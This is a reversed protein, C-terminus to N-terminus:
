RTEEILPNEAEEQDREFCVISLVFLTPGLIKPDSSNLKCDVHM